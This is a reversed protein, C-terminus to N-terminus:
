FCHMNLGFWHTKPGHASLPWIMRYGCWSDKAKVPLFHVNTRYVCISEPGAMLPGLLSERAISHPVVPQSLQTDISLSVYRTM